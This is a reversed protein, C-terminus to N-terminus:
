VSLKTPRLKLTRGLNDLQEPSALTTFIVIAEELEKRSPSFAAWIPKSHIEPKAEEFLVVLHRGEHPRGNILAEESSMRLLAAEFSGEEYLKPTLRHERFFDLIFRSATEHPFRKNIEVGFM